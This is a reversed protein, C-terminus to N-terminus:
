RKLIPPRCADYLRRNFAGLRAHAEVLSDRHTSAERDRWILAPLEQRGVSKATRAAGFIDVYMRNLPLSWALMGSVM